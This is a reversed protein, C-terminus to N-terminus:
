IRVDAPSTLGIRSLHPCPPTPFCLNKRVDKIFPELYISFEIRKKVKEVSMEVIPVAFSLAM